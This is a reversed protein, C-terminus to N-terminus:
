LAMMATHLASIQDASLQTSYIAVAQINKASTDAIYSGYGYYLGIPFAVGPDGQWTTSITGLSSGGAYVINKAFGLTGSLSLNYPQYYGDGYGVDGWASGNFPFVYYRRTPSLALVGGLFTYTGSTIGSYRFVVSSTEVPSWGTSYYKTGSGDWVWGDTANWTPVDSGDTLDYTGPNALNNKSATQNDAGKAAYAAVCDGSSIGGALWWVSPTKAQMLGSGIIM